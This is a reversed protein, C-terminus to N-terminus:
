LSIKMNFFTRNCRFTTDRSPGANILFDLPGPLFVQLGKKFISVPIPGSLTGTFKKSYGDTYIQWGSKQYM